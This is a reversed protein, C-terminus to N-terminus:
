VQVRSGLANESTEVVAPIDGPGEPIPVEGEYRHSETAEDSQPTSSREDHNFLLTSITDQTSCGDIKKM